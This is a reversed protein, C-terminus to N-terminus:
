NEAEYVAAAGMGTGICMSVVGYRGKTRKLEHFLTTTQRAGTCGLPHGLAIAGGNPNVKALDLGLTEISYLAQSAFAENIEYVDIDKTSLGAKKLAEPIAFAPGIGMVNPPVGVVSYSVFRGLIPLGLKKAVSRRALVVAAAGDTMQSSNGATSSGNKRFAPKLKQLQELSTPKAGDDESITVEKENGEKDKLVTKVPVIEAKFKGDKIAKIARNYSEAAFKDQKERAVGYKEAVNESTEGMSILCDRAKENDFIKQNIDGVDTMNGLTMSEVGAGIGIDITGNRIAAAINAIAQLGSSCQRNVTVIPVEEPIGALFQAMRAQVAGGGPPLVNGVVIDQVLKPDVKAREVSAKLAASLLDTPHTDKFGGRKAKCMPTRVASVIVVDEDSKAPAAAPYVELAPSPTGITTALQNLRRNATQMIDANTHGTSHSKNQLLSETGERPTPYNLKGYHAISAVTLAPLSLYVNDITTVTTNYKFAYNFAKKIIFATIMSAVTKKIMLVMQELEEEQDRQKKQRAARQAELKERRQLESQLEHNEVSTRLFNHVESQISHNLKDHSTYYVEDIQRQIDEDACEQAFKTGPLLFKVNVPNYRYGSYLEEKEHQSELYEYDTQLIPPQYNRPLQHQM